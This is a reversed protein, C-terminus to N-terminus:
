MFHTIIGFFINQYLLKKGWNLILNPNVSDFSLNICKRYIDTQTHKHIHTITHIFPHTHIHSSLTLCIYLMTLICILDQIIGPLCVKYREEIIYCCIHCSEYTAFSNSFCFTSFFSLTLYIFFDYTIYSIDFDNFYM